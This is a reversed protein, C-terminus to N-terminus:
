YPYKLSETAEMYGLHHSSPLWRKFGLENQKGIKGKRKGKFNRPSAQSSWPSIKHSPLIIPRFSSRTHVKITHISPEAHNRLAQKLEELNGKKTIKLTKERHNEELTKPGKIKPIQQPIYARVRWPEKWKSEGELDTLFPSLKPTKTTRLNTTYKASIGRNSKIWRTKTSWLKAISHGHPTGVIGLTKNSDTSCILLDPTPNPPTSRRTRNMELQGPM